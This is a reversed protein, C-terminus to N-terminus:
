WATGLTRRDTEVSLAQREGTQLQGGDGHPDGRGVQRQLGGHGPGHRRARDAGAGGDGDGEQVAIPLCSSKLWFECSHLCGRRCQEKNSTIKVKSM